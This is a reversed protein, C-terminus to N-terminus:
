LVVEEAGVFSLAQLSKENLEYVNVYGLSMGHERMRRYVWDRAQGRSTTTYFGRGYDLTRASQRIEPQEVLELSGHYLKMKQNRKKVIHFRGDGGFAM